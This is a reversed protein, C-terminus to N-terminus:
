IFDEPHNIVERHVESIMKREEESLKSGSMEDSIKSAIEKFEICAFPDRKIAKMEYDISEPPKNQFIKQLKVNTKTIKIFNELGSLSGVIKNSVERAEIDDICKLPIRLTLSYDQREISM